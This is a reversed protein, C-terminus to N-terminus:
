LLALVAAVLLVVLFSFLTSAGSGQSGTTSSTGTTLVVTTNTNGTQTATTQTATTQTATTQTATTQTATTVVSTASGTTTQVTNTLTVNLFGDFAQVTFYIRGGPYIDEGVTALWSVGKSDLSTYYYSNEYSESEDYWYANYRVGISGDGSGSNSVTFNALTTENNGGPVDLYFFLYQSEGTTTENLTYPGLNTGNLPLLQWECNPGLSTTNCVTEELTFHASIPDTTGVDGNNWGLYFYNGYRPAICTLVYTYFSTANTYYTSSCWNRDSFDSYSAGAGPTGYLDLDSANTYVTLVVKGTNLKPQYRIGGLFPDSAPPYVVDWSYPLTSPATTYNLCIVKSAEDYYQATSNGPCTDNISVRLAYGCVDNYYFSNYRRVGFYWYTGVVWRFEDEDTDPAFTWSDFEDSDVSGVEYTDDYCVVGNQDYFASDGCPFGNTRVYLNLAECDAPQSSVEFNVSVASTNEPIWVRYLNLNYADDETLVASLAGPAVSGLTLDTFSVSNAFAVALFALLLIATKM